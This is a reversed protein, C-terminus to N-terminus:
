GERLVGEHVFGYKEHCRIGRANDIDAILEVRRLGLRKFAYSLM